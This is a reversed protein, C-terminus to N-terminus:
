RDDLQAQALPRLDRAITQIAVSSAAAATASLQISAAASEFAAALSTFAEATKDAKWETGVASKALTNMLARARWVFLGLVALGVVELGLQGTLLWVLGRVSRM